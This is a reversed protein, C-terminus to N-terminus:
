DMTTQYNWITMTNTEGDPGGNGVGQSWTGSDHFSLRVLGSLLAISRCKHSYVHPALQYTHRRSFYPNHFISFRLQSLICPAVVLYQCLSVLVPSFHDSVELQTEELLCRPLSGEAGEGAAEEAAEGAAGEQDEM